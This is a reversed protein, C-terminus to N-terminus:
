RDAKGCIHSIGRSNKVGFVKRKRWVIWWDIREEM